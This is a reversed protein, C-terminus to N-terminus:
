GAHRPCADTKRTRWPGGIAWGGAAALERAVAPTSFGLVAAPCDTTGARRLGTRTATYRPVTTDCALRSPQEATAPHWTM